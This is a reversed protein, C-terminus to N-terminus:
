KWKWVKSNKVKRRLHAGEQRSRAVRARRDGPKAEQLFFLKSLFLYVLRVFSCCCCCLFCFCRCCYQDKGFKLQLAIWWFFFFFLFLSSLFLLLSLFLWLLFLLLFYSALFHEGQWMEMTTGDVLFLQRTSRFQRPLSSCAPSFLLLLRISTKQSEQGDKPLEQLNSETQAFSSPLSLSSVLLRAMKSTLLSSLQSLRLQSKYWANTSESGLDDAPTLATRTQARWSEQKAERSSRGRTLDLWSCSYLVLLRSCLYIWIVHPIKRVDLQTKREPM